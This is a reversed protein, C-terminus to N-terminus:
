IEQGSRKRGRKLVFMWEEQMSKEKKGLLYGMNDFLIKKTYLPAHNTMRADGYYFFFSSIGYKREV